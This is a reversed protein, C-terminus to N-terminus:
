RQLYLLEDTLRIEDKGQAPLAQQISLESEALNIINKPDKTDLSNGSRDQLLLVIPSTYNM